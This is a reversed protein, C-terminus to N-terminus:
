DSKNNNVNLRSEYIVCVKSMELVEKIKAPEKNIMDVSQVM